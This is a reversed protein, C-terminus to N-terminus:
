TDLLAKLTDKYKKLEEELEKVKQSLLTNDQSEEKKNELITRTLDAGELNAGRLNAGQLYACWLNAGRLNAGELNANV